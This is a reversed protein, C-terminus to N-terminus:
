EVFEITDGVYEKTMEILTKYDVKVAKECFEEILEEPQGISRLADKAYGMIAYANSNNGSLYIKIIHTQEM